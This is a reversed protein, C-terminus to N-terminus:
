AKAWIVLAFMVLAVFLVIAGVVVAAATNQKDRVEALLEGLHVQPFILRSIVVAVGALVLGFLSWQVLTKAFAADVLFLVVLAPVILLWATKDLLVKARATQQIYAITKSFM